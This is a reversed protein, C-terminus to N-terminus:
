RGFLDSLKNLGYLLNFLRLSKLNIYVTDDIRLKRVKNPLLTTLKIRM